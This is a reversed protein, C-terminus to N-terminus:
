RPTLRASGLVFTVAQSRGTATEVLRWGRREMCAVRETLILHQTPLVNPLAFAGVVPVMALATTEELTVQDAAACAAMDQRQGSETSGARAWGYGQEFDALGRAQLDDRSGCGTVLGLAAILMWRM